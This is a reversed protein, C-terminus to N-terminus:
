AEQGGYYYYYYGEGKKREIGNIVAGLIRAKATTLQQLAEKARNTQAVGARAVLIVGDLRTALLSADTVALVPPADVLVYDYAEELQALVTGLRESGLLESPNPPIPGSALLSVGKVKTEQIYDMPPVNEALVNTIGQLNSMSYIKHQMPLRLDCDVILVRKGTQALTVALNALVLSKGEDPGTSTILLHRLPKDVGLFQLNTRLVKIAEAEPAKPDEFAVLPAALLPKRGKKGNPGTQVNQKGSFLPVEGLVPLRLNKEVDKRTNIKNDLMHLVFALGVSLVFGLMAALALIMRKNPKIPNQSATAPSIVLLNTDGLNVSQSIKTETIKESLLQYTKELEAVKNLYQDGESRKTTIEAQLNNYTDEISGAYRDAAYYQSEKEALETKKLVLQESLTQYLPNATGDELKKPTAALESELTSVGSELQSIAIDLEQVKSRYTNMDELYGDQQKQLFAVSGPQAEYEKQKARAEELQKSVLDAQEQLFQVSKSMQAQNNESISNLFESTLTDAIDVALKPDTNQVSVTILNTDKSNAATIMTDLDKFSYNQEELHLAQIVRSLMVPEKIQAVYTNISMQPLQSIDNILSELNDPNAVTTNKKDGQVVLLTTEAEYVPPLVFFAMFGAALIAVLTVTIILAKYQLMIELMEKLDLEIYQENQTTEEPGM